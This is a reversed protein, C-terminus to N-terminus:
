PTPRPRLSSALMRRLSKPGTVKGPRTPGDFCVEGEGTRPHACVFCDALKRGETDQAVGPAFCRSGTERDWMGLRIDFSMLRVDFRKGMESRYAGLSALLPQLPSPDVAADDRLADAMAATPAFADPVLLTFTGALAAEDWAVELTVLPADVLGGLRRSLNQVAAPDLVFGEYLPALGFTTVVVRPGTEGLEPAAPAPTAEPAPTADGAPTPEALSDSAPRDCALLALAVLFPLRLRNRAQTSGRGHRPPVRHGM